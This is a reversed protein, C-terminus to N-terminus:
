LLCVSSRFNHVHKSFTIVSTSMAINAQQARTLTDTGGEDPFVCALACHQPIESLLSRAFTPIEPIKQPGLQLTPFALLCTPKVFVDSGSCEM